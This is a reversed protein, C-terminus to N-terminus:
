AKSRAAVPVPESKDYMHTKYIYSQPVPVKLVERIPNVLIILEMKGVRVTVTRKRGYATAPVEGERKKVVEMIELQSDGLKVIEQYIYLDGKYLSQRETCATRGM